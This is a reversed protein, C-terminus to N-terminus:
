SPLISAKRLFALLPLLPLGLIVYYDGAVKEFLQAGLGEYHYCGASNLCADKANVLYHELFADSFARMTLDVSQVDSFIVEGRYAVAVASHLEHTHGRLAQLKARAEGITKAKHLPRGQFNLVQDSGIVYSDSKVSLAKAKALELPLEAPHLHAHAHHLQSEDVDAARSAFDLGVGRLMKIRTTSTSALILKTQEM